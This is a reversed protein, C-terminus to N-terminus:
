CQWCINDDGLTDLYTMPHPCKIIKCNKSESPPLNSVYMIGGGHNIRIHRPVDDIWYSPIMDFHERQQYILFLIIIIIFVLCIFWTM